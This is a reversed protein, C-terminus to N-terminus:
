PLDVKEFRRGNAAPDESEIYLARTGPRIDGVDGMADAVASDAMAGSVRYRVPAGSIDPVQVIAGMALLPAGYNLNIRKGSVQTVRLPVVHFSVARAASLALDNQLSAYSARGAPGASCGGEGAVVHHALSATRTVTGGYVIAGSRADRVRVDLSAAANTGAVCYDVATARSSTTELASVRGSLVYAPAPLDRGGSRASLGLKGSQAIASQIRDRLQPFNNRCEIVLWAGWFAAFVSCDRDSEIEAVKVAPRGQAAAQTGTLSAPLMLAALLLRSRM